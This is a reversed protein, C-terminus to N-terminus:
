GQSYATGKGMIRAIPRVAEYLDTHVLRNSLDFTNSDLLAAVLIMEPQAALLHRSVDFSASRPGITDFVKKLEGIHGALFNEVLESLARPEMETLRSLEEVNEVTMLPSGPGMGIDEAATTLLNNLALFEYSKLSSVAEVGRDLEMDMLEVLALVRAFQRKTSSPIESPGKYIYAHETEAWTHEAITRIQVEFGVISSLCTSLGKHVVDLHLGGYRLQRYDRDAEKDEIKVVDFVEPKSGLVDRVRLKESALAVIIRLGLIDKCDTWPVPYAKSRQKVLLSIPDKRRSQVLHPTIGHSRLLDTLDQTIRGLVEDYEAQADVYAAYTREPTWPPYSTDSTTM